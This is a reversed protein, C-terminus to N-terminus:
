AGGDTSVYVGDSTAALLRPTNTDLRVVDYVNARLGTNVATWSAGGNVTQYIGNGPQNQSGYGTGGYVIDPCGPDIYLAVFDRGEAPFGSGASWSGGLGATTKYVKSTVGAYIVQANTPHVALSEIVHWSDGSMGSSSTATWNDGGDTSSYIRANTGCYITQGNSPDVAVSRTSCPFVEKVQSFSDGKNQSRYIATSQAAFVNQNYPSPAFVLGYIISPVSTEAWNSAADTTKWIKGEGFAGSVLLLSVNGPDMVIKRNGSTGLGTNAPSVWSDGGNTSYYVGKSTAVYVKGNDSPDVAFSRAELPTDLGSNSASWDIADLAANVNTTQGATVTVQQPWRHYGAKVLTLTRQGAATVFTTPTTVGQAVGDLYVLAGSPTSSISIQTPAPTPSPTPTALDADLDSVVGPRITAQGEWCTLEAGTGDTCPHATIVVTKRRVPAPDAVVIGYSEEGFKWLDRWAALGTM